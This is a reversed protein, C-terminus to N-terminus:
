KEEKIVIRFIEGIKSQYYDWKRQNYPRITTFLINFDFRETLDKAEDEADLFYLVIVMRLNSLDYFKEKGLKDYYRTDFKLFDPHLDTLYCFDVKILKAKMINGFKPYKHSFSIQNM